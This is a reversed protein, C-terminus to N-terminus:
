YGAMSGANGFVGPVVVALALASLGLTVLAVLVLRKINM